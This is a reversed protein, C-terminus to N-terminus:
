SNPKRLLYLLSKRQNSLWNSWRACSFFTKNQSLYSFNRKRHFFTKTPRKKNSHAISNWKLSSGACGQIKAVEFMWITISFSYIFKIVVQFQWLLIYELPKPLAPIISAIVAALLTRAFHWLCQFKFRWKYLVHKASFNDEFSRHM